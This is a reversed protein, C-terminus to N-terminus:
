VPFKLFHFFIALQNEKKEQFFFCFIAILNILQCAFKLYNVRDKVGVGVITFFQRAHRPYGLPLVFM